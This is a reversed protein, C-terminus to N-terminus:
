LRKNANKNKVAGILYLVLIVNEIVLISLGLIVLFAFGLPPGADVSASSINLISQIYWRFIALSVVNIIVLIQLLKAKEINERNRVGVIGVFLGYAGIAFFIAYYIQWALRSGYWGEIVSDISLLTSTTTFITLSSFIIILIGAVNLLNRGPAIQTESIGQNVGMGCNNCFNVNEGALNNGCKKCNM